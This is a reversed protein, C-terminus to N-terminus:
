PKPAAALQRELVVPVTLDGRTYEGELKGAKSLAGEFVGGTQLTVKLKDGTQELKGPVGFLREAPSDGTVQSGLHIVIPMMEQHVKMQGQWDGGVNAAPAAPAAVTQALAGGAIMALALAGAGITSKM